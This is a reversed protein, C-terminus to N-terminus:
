FIESKQFWELWNQGFIDLKTEKNKKAKYIQNTQDLENQALCITQDILKNSKLKTLDFTVFLFFIVFLFCTHTQVASKSMEFGKFCKSSNPKTHNLKTPITQNPQYPKTIKIKTQYM